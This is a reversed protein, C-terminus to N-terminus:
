CLLRWRISASSLINRAMARTTARLAWMNMRLYKMAHMAMTRAEGASYRTSDKMRRFSAGAMTRNLQGSVALMADRIAEAGYFGLDSENRLQRRVDLVLDEIATATVPM